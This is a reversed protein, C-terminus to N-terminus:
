MPQAMAPGVHAFARQQVQQGPKVTGNDSVLRTGLRALRTATSVQAREAVDKLTARRAM